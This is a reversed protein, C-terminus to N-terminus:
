RAASSAPASSSSPRWSISGSKARESALMGPPNSRACAASTSALLLGSVRLADDRTPNLFFYLLTRTKYYRYTNHYTVYAIGFLLAIPLQALQVPLESLWLEAGMAALNFNHM